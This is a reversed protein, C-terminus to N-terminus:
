KRSKGSSADQAQAGLVLPLDCRSAESGIWRLKGDDGAEVIQALTQDIGVLPLRGDDGSQDALEAM